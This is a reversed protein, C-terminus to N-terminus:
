LPDIDLDGLDDDSDDDIDPDKLFEPLDIDTGAPETFPGNQGFDGIPRFPDYPDLPLVDAKPDFVLLPRSKKTTGRIPIDETTSDTLQDASQFPIKPMVNDPNFPDM